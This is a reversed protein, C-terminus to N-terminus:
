PWKGHGNEIGARDKTEERSDQKKKGRIYEDRSSVKERVCSGREFRMRKEEVSVGRM